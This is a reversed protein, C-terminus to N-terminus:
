LLLPSFLLKVVFFRAVTVKSFYITGFHSLGIEYVEQYLVRLLCIAETNGILVRCSKFRIM